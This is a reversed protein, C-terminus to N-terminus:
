LRSALVGPGGLVVGCELPIFGLGGGVVVFAVM